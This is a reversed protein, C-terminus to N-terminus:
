NARAYIFDDILHALIDRGPGSGADVRHPVVETLSGNGMYWSSYFGNYDNGESMFYFGEAYKLLIIENSPQQGIQEAFIKAIRPNYNLGRCQHFEREEETSLITGIINITDTGTPTLLDEGLESLRSGIVASEYNLSNGTAYELPETAPAMLLPKISVFKDNLAIQEIVSLIARSEHPYRVFLRVIIEKKPM